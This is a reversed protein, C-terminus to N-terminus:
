FYDIVDDHHLSNGRRLPRVKHTIEFYKQCALQYHSSEVYGLVSQSDKSSLGHAQLMGTVHGKDWHRFPCGPHAPGILSMGRLGRGSTVM